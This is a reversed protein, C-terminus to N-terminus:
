NEFGGGQLKRLNDLEMKLQQVELRKKQLELQYLTNCNIREKAGDLPIIIRAYLGVDKTQPNLPDENSFISTANNIIGTVGFELNTGGGIANSCDLDGARFKDSQYNGGSSPLQLNLSSNDAYICQTYVIAILATRIKLM